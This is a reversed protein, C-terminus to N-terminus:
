TIVEDGIQYCLDTTNENNNDNNQSNQSFVTMSNIIAPTIARSSNSEIEQFYYDDNEIIEQTVNTDITTDITANVTTNENHIEIETQNQSKNTQNYYKKLAIEVAKPYLLSLTRHLQREHPDRRDLWGIISAIDDITEYIRWVTNSQNLENENMENLDNMDDCHDSSYHSKTYYEWRNTQENKNNNNKTANSTSNGVPPINKREYYHMENEAIKAANIIDLSNSNSSIFVSKMNNIIWYKNGYYDKGITTNKGRGIGAIIDAIRLTETRQSRSILDERNTQMIEACCEHVRLSGVVFEKDM